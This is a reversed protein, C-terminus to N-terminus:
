LSSTAVWKQALRKLEGKAELNNVARNFESLLPSGKRLVIGYGDPASAIVRSSLGSNRQCFEQAQSKGLLVADIQHAKLAEILPSNDDMAHIQSTPLRNKLWIEMTTGLQCGVKKWQLAEASLIPNGEKYVVTLEDMFYPISFDFSKTREPTITVSALVADIKQNQLALLLAGFQMDQIEIDKDLEKGILSALEIDFGRLEHGVKYEFPPYTASTGIYIKKSSRQKKCSFYFLLLLSLLVTVVKKM